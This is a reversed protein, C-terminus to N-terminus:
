VREDEPGFPILQPNSAITLVNDDDDDDDEDSATVTQYEFKPAVECIM